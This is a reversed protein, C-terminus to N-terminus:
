SLASIKAKLEPYYSKRISREGLGVIADRLQDWQDEGDTRKTM